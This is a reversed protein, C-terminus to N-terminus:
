RDSKQRRARKYTYAYYCQICFTVGLLMITSISEYAFMYIFLFGYLAALKDGVIRRLYVIGFVILVMMVFFLWAGRGLLALVSEILLTPMFEEYHKFVMRTAFADGITREMIFQENGGSDKRVSVTSVEKNEPLSGYCLPSGQVSLFRGLKQEGENIEKTWWQASLDDMPVAHLENQEDVELVYGPELFMIQYINDGVERFCVKQNNGGEYKEFSVSYVNPSDTETATLVLSPDEYHELIYVEEESIEIKRTGIGVSIAYYLLSGVSLVCLACGGYRAVKRSNGSLWRWLDVFRRVIKATRASKKKGKSKKKSTKKSKSKKNSVETIGEISELDAIDIDQEIAELKKQMVESEVTLDPIEEEIAEKTGSAAEEESPEKVVIGYVVAALVFLVDPGVSELFNGISNGIGNEQLLMVISYVEMGVCTVLIMCAAEQVSYRKQFGTILFYGIITLLMLCLPLKCASIIGAAMIGMIYPRIKELIKNKRNALILVYQLLLLVLQSSGFFTPKMFWSYFQLIGVTNLLNVVTILVVYIVIIYEMTMYMEDLKIKKLFKGMM